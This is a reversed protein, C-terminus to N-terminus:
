LKEKVTTRIKSLPLFFLPNTSRKRSGTIYRTETLVKIFSQFGTCVHYILNNLPDTSKVELYRMNRPKQPQLNVSLYALYEFNGHGVYRKKKFLMYNFHGPGCVYRSIGTTNSIDINSISVNLHGKLTRKFLHLEAMM